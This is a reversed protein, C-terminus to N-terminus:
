EHDLIRKPFFRRELALCFPYGTFSATMQRRERRAGKGRAVPHRLWSQSSLTIRRRVHSQSLSFPQWHTQMRRGHICVRIPLRLLLTTANADVFRSARSNLSARRMVLPDKRDNTQQESEKCISTMHSPTQSVSCSTLLRDVGPTREFQPDM